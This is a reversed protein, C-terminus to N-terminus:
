FVGSDDGNEVYRVIDYAQQIMEIHAPKLTAVTLQCHELLMRMCEYTDLAKEIIRDNRTSV